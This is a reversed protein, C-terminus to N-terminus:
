RHRARPWVFALAGYRAAQGAIQSTAPPRVARGSRFYGIQMTEDAM